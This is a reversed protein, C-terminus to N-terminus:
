QWAPGSDTVVMPQVGSRLPVTAGSITVSGGSSAMGKQFTVSTSGDLTVTYSSGGDVVTPALSPATAAKAQLVHLFYSQAAGSTDVELRYQGVGGGETVSRYTPAAPVLTTLALAQGGNTCTRHSADVATWAAECHALFTKTRAATDSQIRDLVVLAELRRVYVFDRVVSVVAANDRAPSWPDAVDNRYAPTLDTSAFAFGADSQVRGVTPVGNPEGDALGKGNVLIVNHAPPASSDVSGAGGYGVFSDSYGTSERSVFRGGRWLQWNGADLHSHTLTGNPPAKLQLHLVASSSDWATRAFLHGSGAAHYDLPLSSFPRATVTGSVSSTWEDTDPSVLNLWTQAYQGVNVSSWRSAMRLMFDGRPRGSASGGNRFGEDDDFPFMEMGSVGGPLTTRAPLTSYIAAFVAEKHFSSEGYLDRGLLAATEFPVVSYWPLYAGYQLGEQAVGGKGSTAVTALFNAWRTNLADDLYSEAKATNEEYSVIAWELENRLYGWFYNNQPQLASGTQYWEGTSASLMRDYWANVKAIITTREASTMGSYCWDWTANVEEGYWRMWDAQIATSQGAVNLNLVWNIATRCAATDNGLLGKLAYQAYSRSDDGSPSISHSGYWARAQALRNTDFWLRPHTAPIALGHTTTAAALGKGSLSVTLSQGAGGATDYTLALALSQAGASAPSFAVGFSCSQGAGVTVKAASTGCGNGSLVFAGAATGLRVNTAAGQGTNTVTFTQPASSTGVTVNGFDRSAPAVSLAGVAAVVTVYAEGRAGSGPEVAVITFSGPAAPATYLGSATISGGVSGQLVSWALSPATLAAFAQQQEPGLLAEPPTIAVDPPTAGSCAAALACVALGLARPLTSREM